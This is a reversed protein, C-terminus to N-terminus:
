CNVALGWVWHFNEVDAERRAQIQLKVEQGLEPAQCYPPLVVHYVYYKGDVPEKSIIVILRTFNVPYRDVVYGDVDYVANSVTSTRVPIENHCVVCIPGRPTQNVQVPQTVRPKPMTVTATPTAMPAMPRQPMGRMPGRAGGMPQGLTQTVCKIGDGYIERAVIIGGPTKEGVVTLTTGKPISYIDVNCTLAPPIRVYVDSGGVQLILLGQYFGAVTGTLQVTSAILMPMLLEVIM